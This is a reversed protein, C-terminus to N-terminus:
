RLRAKTVKNRRNVEKRWTRSNRASVVAMTLKSAATVALAGVTMVEVPNEDFKAKLSTKWGPIPNNM